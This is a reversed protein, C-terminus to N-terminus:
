RMGWEAHLDRETGAARLGLLDEEITARAIAAIAEAQDKSEASGFGPALQGMERLPKQLREYDWVTPRWVVSMGWCNGLDPHNAEDRADMPTLAIEPHDWSSWQERPRLFLIDKRSGLHEEMADYDYNGENLIDPGILIAQPLPTGDLRHFPTWSRPTYNCVDETRATGEELAWFGMSRSRLGIRAQELMEYPEDTCEFATPFGFSRADEVFKKPLAFAEDMRSYEFDGGLLAHLGKNDTVGCRQVLLLPAAMDEEGDELVPFQNCRFAFQDGRLSIYDIKVEFKRKQSIMKKNAM